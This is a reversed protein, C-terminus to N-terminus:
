MKNRNTFVEQENNIRNEYLQLFVSNFCTFLDPDVFCSFIHRVYPVRDHNCSYVRPVVNQYWIHDNLTKPRKEPVVPVLYVPLQYFDTRMDLSALGFSGVHQILVLAVEERLALKTPAARESHHRCWPSTGVLRFSFLFNSGLVVSGILRESSIDAKLVMVHAGIEAGRGEWM